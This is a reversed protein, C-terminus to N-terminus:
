QAKRESLQEQLMRNAEERTMTQLTDRLDHSLMMILYYEQLQVKKKGEAILPLLVKDDYQKIYYYWRWLFPYFLKLRFYGNLRIVAALKCTVQSEEANEVMISSYKRLTARKLWSVKVKKKGFVVETKEDNMISSLEREDEKNAYRM